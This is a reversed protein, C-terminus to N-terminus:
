FGFDFGLFDAFSEGSASAARIDQHISELNTDGALHVHHTWFRLTRLMAWSIGLGLTPVIILFNGAWLRLLKWGTVTCRFRGTEFTTNAWYYRHRLASWWAWGIGLSCVSFPIAFVWALLLDSGRGPFSFVSDGFYTKDFLLKRLRVQLFPAYIGFTLMTLLFGGISTLLFRMATGRYSFRIGRWSMRNLRYRYAGVRAVPWLIAIAAVACLQAVYPSLQNQWVLPLVSPLLFVVALAPLARLWGLLLERGTGHFAFWDGQFEAQGCVFRRVKAKGWFSYIGLTLLSLLLNLVRMAFLVSVEARLTIRQEPIERVPAPESEEVLESAAPAYLLALRRDVRRACWAYVLGFLLSGGFPAGVFLVLLMVILIPRLGGKNVQRGVAQLAAINMRNADATRGMSQYLRSLRLEENPLRPDSPDGAEIAAVEVELKEAARSNKRQGEYIMSLAGASEILIYRTPPASRERLVRFSSESKAENGARLYAQALLAYLELTTQATPPELPTRLLLSEEAAEAGSAFLGQDMRVRAIQDMCVAAALDKKHMKQRLDFAQQYVAEAEPSQHRSRLFRGLDFLAHYYADSRESHARKQIDLIRRYLREGMAPDKTRFAVQKLAFIFRPDSPKWLRERIAIARAYEAEARAQQNACHM